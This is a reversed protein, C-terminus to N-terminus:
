PLSTNTDYQINLATPVSKRKLFTRTMFTTQLNEFLVYIESTNYPNPAQDTLHLSVSWACVCVRFVSVYNSNWLVDGLVLCFLKKLVVVFIHFHKGAAVHVNM